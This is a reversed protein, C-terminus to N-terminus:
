EKQDGNGTPQGLKAGHSKNSEAVLDPISKSKIDLGIKRTALDIENFANRKKQANVNKVWIGFWAAGLLGIATMLPGMVLKVWVLFDTM